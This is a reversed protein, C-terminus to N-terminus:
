IMYMMDTWGEGTMSQIVSHISHLIDDFGTIGYNFASIELETENWQYSPEWATPSRCYTGKPCRGFVGEDYITNFEADEDFKCLREFDPYLKWDTGDTPPEPTLRCRYEFVGNFAHLGFTALVCIIFLLFLAVNALPPISYIFSKVLVRIGKVKNISRLPRLLRITRLM